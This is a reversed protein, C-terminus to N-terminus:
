DQLICLLTGILKIGVSLLALNKKKHKIINSEDTPKDKCLTCKENKEIHM